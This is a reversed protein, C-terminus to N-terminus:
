TGMIEHLLRLEIHGDRGRSATWVAQDTTIIWGERVKVISLVEEHQRLIFTFLSDM